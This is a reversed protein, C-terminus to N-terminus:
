SKSREVFQSREVVVEFEDFGGAVRARARDLRINGQATHVRSEGRDKWIRRQAALQFLNCQQDLGAGILRGSYVHLPLNEKRLNAPKICMRSLYVSLSVQQSLDTLRDVRKVSSSLLKTDLIFHRRKRHRIESACKLGGAATDVYNSGIMRPSIMLQDDSSLHQAM